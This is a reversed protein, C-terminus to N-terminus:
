TKLHVIKQCCYLQVSEQCKKRPCDQRRKKQPKKEKSLRAEEEETAEEAAKQARTVVFSEGSSVIRLDKSSLLSDLEPVYLDAGLIVSAPLNESIAAKVKMKKGALEVEVESLPYLVTNSHACRMTVAEGELIKSTRALHTVGNDPLMRHGLHYRAGDNRRGSREKESVYSHGSGLLFSQFKKSM